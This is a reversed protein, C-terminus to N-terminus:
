SFYGSDLYSRHLSPFFSALLISHCPYLHVARKPPLNNTHSSPSMKTSPKKYHPGQNGVLGLRTGSHATQKFDATKNEENWGLIVWSQGVKFSSSSKKTWWFSSRFKPCFTSRNGSACLLRKNGPRLSSHNQTRKRVRMKMESAQKSSIFRKLFPNHRQM